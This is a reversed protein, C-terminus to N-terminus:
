DAVAQEEAALAQDVPRLRKPLMELSANAVEAFSPTRGANSVHGAGSELARLTDSWIQRSVDVKFLRCLATALADVTGGRNTDIAETLHLRIEGKRHPPTINAAEFAIGALDCAQAGNEHLAELTACAQQFADDVAAALARRQEMTKRLEALAQAARLRAAKSTSSNAESIAQEHRMKALDIAESNARLDANAQAFEDADRAKQRRAQLQQETARLEELQQRAANIPHTTTM